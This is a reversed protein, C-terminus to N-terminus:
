RNQAAKRQEATLARQYKRANRMHEDYHTAFNHYGSFDERSCMYLYAHQEYNLVADIMSIQPMNIPGPPLGTYKYTNYPSEVEKHENLVRKITFDGVAYVLTPDAQLAMDRKLRNMYLGAIRPAEDERFNEAQVISALTSVELPSLGIAKAKALRQENWFKKYEEYLKAVLDEPSVNFYVEHTNPIFMAIITEKTFGEPNSDVFSSLADRFEASTMGVNRTIKEYLDEVKRAHSFTVNVPEQKGSKLVKIAEINTMGSRLLFRGPRIQEDYNSLRAVFSFSVPDNIFKGDYLESIVQQYTAGSRVVFLQDQRDVLINPTFAIQYGYFVFTILLMSGGLYFVLKRKSLPENKLEAMGNLTLFNVFLCATPNPLCFGMKSLRFHAKRVAFLRRIDSNSVPSTPM